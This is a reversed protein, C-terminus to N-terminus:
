MLRRKIHDSHALITTMNQSWFIWIFWIVPRMKFACESCLYLLCFKQNADFKRASAQSNLQTYKVGRRRNYNYRVEEIDPKAKRFAEEAKDFNGKIEEAVSEDFISVVKVLKSKLYDSTSMIPIPHKSQKGNNSTKKMTIKETNQKYKSFM